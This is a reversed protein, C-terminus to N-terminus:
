EERLIRVPEIRTARFAPIVTAFIGVILLLIAVATFTLPDTARVGYILSSVVRSLALAAA